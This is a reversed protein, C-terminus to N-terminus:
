RIRENIWSRFFKIITILKCYEMVKDEPFTNGGKEIQKEKVVSIITRLQKLRRKKERKRDRVTEQLLYELKNLYNMLYLNQAQLGLANETLEVQSWEIAVQKSAGKAADYKSSKNKLQPPRLNLQQPNMIKTTTKM